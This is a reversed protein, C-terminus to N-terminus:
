ASPGLDPNSSSSSDLWKKLASKLTDDSTQLTDAIHKFIDSITGDHIHVSPEEAAPPQAGKVVEPKASEKHAEGTKPTMTTKGVEFQFGAPVSSPSNSRPVTSRGPVVERGSAPNSSSETNKALDTSLEPPLYFESALSKAVDFKTSKDQPALQQIYGLIQPGPIKVIMGDNAFNFTAHSSDEQHESARNYHFFLFGGSSESKELFHRKDTESSLNMNSVKITVDKCLILGSVFSPLQCDAPFSPPVLEDRIKKAMDAPALTEFASPYRAFRYNSNNQM